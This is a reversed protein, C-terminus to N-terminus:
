ADFPHELWSKADDQAAFLKVTVGRNRAVTEFFRNQAVREERVVVAVACGVPIEKSLCQGIEHLEITPIDGYHAHFDALIQLCATQRCHLGVRQILALLGAKEYNGSVELFLREHAPEFVVQFSDKM